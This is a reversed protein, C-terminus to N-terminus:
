GPSEITFFSGATCSILAWSTPEMGPDPLDGPPCFPLGSWYEQRSFGMPPSAKSAVTGPTALTPCSKVVFGGGGVTPVHPLSPNPSQYQSTYGLCLISLWILVSQLAWPVGSLARHYDSHSPFKLFFSLIYTYTCSIWKVTHFFSFYCQFAVISFFFFGLSLVSCPFLM